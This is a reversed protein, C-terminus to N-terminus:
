KTCIAFSYSFAGKSADRSSLSSSIFSNLKNFISPSSSFDCNTNIQGYFPQLSISTIDLVKVDSFGANKLQEEYKSMGVCSNERPTDIIFRWYYKWVIKWLWNQNNNENNLIDTMVLKGGKNLSKACKRFYDERDPYHFASEVACIRDYREGNMGVDKALGKDFKVKRLIDDESAQEITQLLKPCPKTYKEWTTMDAKLGWKKWLLYHACTGPGTELCKLKSDHLGAMMFILKYMNEQAEQFSIKTGEPLQITKSTENHKIANKMIDLVHTEVAAQNGLKDLSFDKNIWLGMNLFQASNDFVSDALVNNYDSYRTALRHLLLSFVLIVVLVAAVITITLWSSYDM